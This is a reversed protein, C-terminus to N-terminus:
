GHSVEDARDLADLERAVAALDEANLRQLIEKQSRTTRMGTKNFLSRLALIKTLAEEAEPTYRISNM